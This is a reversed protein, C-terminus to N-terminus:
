TSSRGYAGKGTETEIVAAESAMSTTRAHALPLGPFRNRVRGISM